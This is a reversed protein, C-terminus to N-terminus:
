GELSLLEVAPKEDRSLTMVAVSPKLDFRAPGAAGPNVILCDGIRDIRQRHTHGYVIVDAEPWAAHLLRATPSGLVHGHVVVVRNGELELDLEDQVRPRLARSDTNGVVAHVPAIAELETIIDRSGVDGAHLILDVGAFVRFVDARLHNHTDSILGVRM